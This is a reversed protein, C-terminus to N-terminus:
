PGNPRIQLGFGILWASEKTGVGALTRNARQISFDLSAFDHALPLGFGATTRSEKVQENGAGFPLTNRAFGARLAVVAGLLRPGSIEAGAHWNTADHAQVLSSGLAQMRSWDQQEIGVAFISGPVGDYRLSAGLRNPINARTRVTDRVRAELSGGARYSASATLGKVLLLEAGVSVGRGFYSVRSSDVVSGFATTDSFTRSIAVLNDGTYLHGGVGVSLRANPRWGVAAQLDGISGRVDSRDDTVYKTGGLTVEGKTVTSYSRDLFTSASLAVGIGSRAPLGLMLLPVREATTKEKSGGFSLTRYEPEVQVALLTGHLGGISAPNRPSLADFEGFAGGTASARTSTGGVPYGFGLGSLTGQAGAGHLPLLAAATAAAAVLRLTLTRVHTM